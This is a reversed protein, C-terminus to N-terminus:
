VYFKLEPMNEHELQHNQCHLQLELLLCESWVLM